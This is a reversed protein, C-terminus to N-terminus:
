PASSESVSRLLDALAQARAPTEEAWVTGLVDDAAAAYDGHEIYSLTAHFGCLGDAGLQYAADNLAAQLEAPLNDFPPWCRRFQERADRFRERLLWEAEYENIPLRTGYGLTDFGETDVYVTDSFGEELKLRAIRSEIWEVQITDTPAGQIAPLIVESDDWRSLGFVLGLGLLAIGIIAATFENM